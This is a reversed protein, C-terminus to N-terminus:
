GRCAPREGSLRATAVAVVAATEVRLISEGLSARLANARACAEIERDTFGGEPGVLMTLEPITLEPNM